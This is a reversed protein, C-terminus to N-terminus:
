RVFYGRLLWAIAAMTMLPVIWALSAPVRASWRAPVALAAGSIAAAGLAATALWGYWYMAPGTRPADVLWGFARLQPHYTFLAWNLEMAPVYLLAFVVSFLPLVRAASM